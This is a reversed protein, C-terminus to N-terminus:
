QERFATISSSIYQSLSELPFCLAGLLSHSRILLKLSVDKIFNYTINIQQSFLLKEPPILPLCCYCAFPFFIGLGMPLFSHPMESFIFPPWIASISFTLSFLFYYWALCTPPSITYFRLPWQLIWNPTIMFIVISKLHWKPHLPILAYSHVM